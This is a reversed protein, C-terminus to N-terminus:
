YISFLYLNTGVRQCCNLLSLFVTPMVFWICTGGLSILANWSTELRTEPRRRFNNDNSSVLRRHALPKLDNRFVAFKADETTQIDNQDDSM